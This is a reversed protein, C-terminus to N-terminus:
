HWGWTITKFVKDNRLKWEQCLLLYSEKQLYWNPKYESWVLDVIENDQHEVVQLCIDFLKDLWQLIECELKSVSPKILTCRTTNGASETKDFVYSQWPQGLETELSGSWRIAIWINM